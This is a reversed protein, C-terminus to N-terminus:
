RRWRAVYAAFISSTERALICPLFARFIGTRCRTCPRTGHVKRVSLHDHRFFRYGSRLGAFPQLPANRQELVSEPELLVELARRAATEVQGALDHHAARLALEDPV